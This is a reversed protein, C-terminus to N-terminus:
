EIHLSDFFSLRRNEHADDTGMKVLRDKTSLFRWYATLEQNIPILDVAYKSGQKKSNIGKVVYEPNAEQIMRIFEKKSKPPKFGSNYTTEIVYGSEEIGGELAVIGNQFIGSSYNPISALVNLGELKIYVENWVIGDREFVESTKGWGGAQLDTTQLTSCIIIFASFLFISVKSSFSSVFKNLYM